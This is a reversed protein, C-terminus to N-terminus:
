SQFKPRHHFMSPHLVMPRVLLSKQGMFSVEARTMRCMFIDKSVRSYGSLLGGGGVSALIALLQSIIADIVTSHGTCLLPSDFPSLVICAHLFFTHKTSQAYRVFLIVERM